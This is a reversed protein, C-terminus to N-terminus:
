SNKHHPYHQKLAGPRCIWFAKHAYPGRFLLVGLAKYSLFGVPEPKGAYPGWCLGALTQQDYFGLQNSPSEDVFNKNLAKSLKLQCLSSLLINVHETNM